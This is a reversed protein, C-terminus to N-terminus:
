DSIKAEVDTAEIYRLEDRALARTLESRLWVFGVATATGTSIEARFAGQPRALVAAFESLMALRGTADDPNDLAVDKISDLVALIALAENPLRAQTTTTGTTPTETQEIM